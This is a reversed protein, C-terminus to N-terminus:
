KKEVPCTSYGFLTYLPCFKVFGTVIFITAAIFIIFAFTGSFYGAYYLAFLLFGVAFRIYSDTTGM